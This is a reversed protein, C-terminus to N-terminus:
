AHPPIRRGSVMETPIAIYRDAGWQSWRAIHADLMQSVEHPEIVERAMGTVSVSWGGAGPAKVEDAQFAVVVNHIAGDLKTGVGVRFVVRDGVLRFDMPVIVPLAGITVGVRGLTATALLQLCEDRDLIELGSRDTEM